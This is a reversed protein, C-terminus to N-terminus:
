LAQNITRYITSRVYDEKLYHNVIKADGAEQNKVIFSQVAKRLAEKEQFNLNM